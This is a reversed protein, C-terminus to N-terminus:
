QPIFGTGRSLPVLILTKAGHQLSHTVTTQKHFGSLEIQNHLTHLILDKVGPRTVNFRVRVFHTSSQPRDFRSVSRFGLGQLLRPTKHLRGPLTPPQRRSLYTLVRKAQDAALLFRCPTTAQACLQQGVM